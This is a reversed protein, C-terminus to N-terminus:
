FVHFLSKNVQNSQNNIIFAFNKLSKRAKSGIQILHHSLFPFEQYNQEFFSEYADFLFLNDL